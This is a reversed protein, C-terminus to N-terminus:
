NWNCAIVTFCVFVFKKRCTWRSYLLFFLTEICNLKDRLIFSLWHEIEIKISNEPTLILV